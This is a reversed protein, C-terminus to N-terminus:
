LRMGPRRARRVHEGRALLADLARAGFTHYAFVAWRARTV